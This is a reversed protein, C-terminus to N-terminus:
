NYFLWLGKLEIIPCEEVCELSRALIYLWCLTAPNDAETKEGNYGTYICIRERFFVTHM